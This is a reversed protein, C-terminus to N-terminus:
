PLRPGLLWICPLYLSVVWSSCSSPPPPNRCKKWILPVAVRLLWCSPERLLLSASLPPRLAGLLLLPVGLGLCCSGGRTLLSLLWTALSTAPAPARESPAEGRRTVASFDSDDGGPIPGRRPLFPDPRVPRLKSNGTVLILCDVSYPPKFSHVVGLLSPGQFRGQGGPSRSLCALGGEESLRGM